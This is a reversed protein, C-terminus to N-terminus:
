KPHRLGGLIRARAAAWDSLPESSAERKRLEEAWAEEWDPDVPGDVSALIESVIELRDHEDLALAQDVVKKAAANM